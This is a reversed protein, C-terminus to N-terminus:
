VPPLCTIEKMLGNHFDQDLAGRFPPDPIENTDIKGELVM